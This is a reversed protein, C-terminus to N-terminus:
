VREALGPGFEVAIPCVLPLYVEAPLALFAGTEFFAVGLLAELPLPLLVGSAEDDLVALLDAFLDALDLPVEFLVDVALFSELLKISFLNFSFSSSIRVIILM